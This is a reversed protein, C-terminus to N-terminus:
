GGNRWMFERLKATPQGDAQVGQEQQYEEIAMRTAKGVSGDIDGNYYGLDQLRQQIWVVDEQNYRPKSEPKPQLEPQVQPQAAPEAPPVVMAVQQGDGSLTEPEVAIEASQLGAPPPVELQSSTCAALFAVVCFILTTGALRSIAPHDVSSSQGLISM